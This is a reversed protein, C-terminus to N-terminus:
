PRTEHVAKQFYDDIAKVIGTSIHDLHKQTELLKAEMKHSLYGLEILVSPVSPLKLIYFNAFRHPKQLLFVHYRLTNVLHHALQVSLNHKERKTLDILINAVEPIEHQIKVGLNLDAKNEKQALQAAQRDSAVASLTYLSLGRVTQDKCSDVHLSLFLDAKQTKAFKLRQALTLSRDKARILIPHYRGTAKLKKYLIKATKLTIHKEYIHGGPKITGPDRGGHGADILIRKKIIKKLSPTLPAPNSEEANTTPVSVDMVYRHFPHVGGPSIWFENEISINKKFILVIKEPTHQTDQVMNTKFQISFNPSLPPGKVKIKNTEINRDMSIQDSCDFVVRMKLPARDAIRIGLLAAPSKSICALIIALLMLPKNIM